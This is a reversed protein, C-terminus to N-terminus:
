RAKRSVDGLSDVIKQLLRVLQEKEAPDLNGMLQEQARLVALQACDLVQLGEDSVKLVKARRDAENTIRSVFGKEVLRDVVGGITTRDYAILAALTAQDISPNEKIAVMAAYQVSTLGIAVRSMETDFLATSIQHFRRALHGPLAILDM